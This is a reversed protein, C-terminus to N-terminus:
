ARFKKLVSQPLSAMAKEIEEVSSSMFYGGIQFRRNSMALVDHESVYMFLM